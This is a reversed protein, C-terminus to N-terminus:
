VTLPIGFRTKKKFIGIFKMLYRLKMSTSVATSVATTAIATVAKKAAHTSSSNTTTTPTTSTTMTSASASSQMSSQIPSSPSFQGIIVLGPEYFSLNMLIICCLFAEKNGSAIVHCLNGILKKAGREKVMVRKNDHPISLNNLILCM